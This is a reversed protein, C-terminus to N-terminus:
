LYGSVLCYSTLGLRVLIVIPVNSSQFGGFHVYVYIYIDSHFTKRKVARSLYSLFLIFWASQTLSARDDLSIFNEIVMHFSFRKHEVAFKFLM